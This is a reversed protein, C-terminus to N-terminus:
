PLLFHRSTFLGNRLTIMIEQCPLAEQPHLAVTSLPQSAPKDGM